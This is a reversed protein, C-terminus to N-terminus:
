LYGISYSICIISRKMPFNWSLFNKNCGEFAHSLYCCIVIRARAVFRAMWGFLAYFFTDTSCKGHADFVKWRRRVSEMNTSCKRHEGFVKWKRRDIKLGHSLPRLTYNKCLNITNLFKRKASTFQNLRSKWAYQLFKKTNHVSLLNYSKKKISDRSTSWM